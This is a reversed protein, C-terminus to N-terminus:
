PFCYLSIIKIQLPEHHNCYLELLIKRRVSSDWVTLTCRQRYREETTRSCLMYMQPAGQVPTHDIIVATLLGYGSQHNVSLLM